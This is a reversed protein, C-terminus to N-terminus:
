LSDTLRIIRAPLTAVNPQIKGNKRYERLADFYEAALKKIEQRVGDMEPNGDFKRINNMLKRHMAGFAERAAKFEAPEAFILRKVAAADAEKRATIQKKLLAFKEPAAALLFGGDGPLM